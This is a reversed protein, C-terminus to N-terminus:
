SINIGGDVSILAGTTWSSEESAFHYISKAIELPEGVRGLPQLKAMSDLTSKKQANPLSHFSHIPTDVIGPCIGNVRIHFPALELALSQTWSNMAAKSASYASTNATPRLGLTSSVNVISGQKQRILEPALRRTFDVAGFLNTTFQSKWSEMTSDLFTAGEYIGANNIISIYAPEQSLIKQIQNTGLHISEENALDVAFCWSPSKLKSQVTKLKELNRGVLITSWSQHSFFEATAQGIGSGAGTIVAIKRM